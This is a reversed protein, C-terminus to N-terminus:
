WFTIQAWDQPWISARQAKLLEIVHECCGQEQHRILYIVRYNMKFMSISRKQINININYTDKMWFFSYAAVSAIYVFFQRYEIRLACFIIQSSSPSYSTLTSLSTIKVMNMRQPPRAQEKWNLLTLVRPGLGGEVHVRWAGVQVASSVLEPKIVLRLLGPSRNVWLRYLLSGM